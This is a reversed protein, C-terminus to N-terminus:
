PRAELICSSPPLDVQDLGVALGGIGIPPVHGTHDVGDDDCASVSFQEELRRMRDHFCGHSPSCNNPQDSCIFAIYLEVHYGAASALQAGRADADWEEGPGTGRHRLLVHSLEHGLIFAWTNVSWERRRDPHVYITSDSGAYAIAAVGGSRQRDDVITGRLPTRSADHQLLASAM